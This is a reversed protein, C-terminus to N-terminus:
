AGAVGINEIEDMSKTVLQKLEKDTVDTLTQLIQYTLRVDEPPTDEGMKAAECNYKKFNDQILIGRPIISGCKLSAKLSSLKFMM